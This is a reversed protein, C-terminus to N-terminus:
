RTYFNSPAAGGLPWFITKRFIRKLPTHNLMLIELTVPGFKVSKNRRVCSSDRYVSYFDLKSYRWGIRLYEGGFKSTTRFRALNQMSKGGFNKPPTDGFNQVRMIFNLRTSVMTCLKVGTPGRMESIERQCFLYLFFMQALVYTRGFVITKPRVLLLIKNFAVM